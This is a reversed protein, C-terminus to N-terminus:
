TARTSASVERSKTSSDGREPSIGEAFAGRLSEPDAAKEMEEIANAYVRRVEAVINRFARRQAPSPYFDVCSELLARRAEEIVDGGLRELFDDMSVGRKEADRQVVAYLTRGLADFDTFFRAIPPQSDEESDEPSPESEAGFLNLLDVGAIDIARRLSGISVRVDWEDGVTDRFTHSM